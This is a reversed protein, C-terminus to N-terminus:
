PCPWLIVTLSCYYMHELQWVIVKISAIHQVIFILNILAKVFTGKFYNWYLHWSFEFSLEWSHKVNVHPVQITNPTLTLSLSFLQQLLLSLYWTRFQYIAVWTSSLTHLTAWTRSDGLRVGPGARCTAFLPPHTIPWNPAKNLLITITPQCCYIRFCCYCITTCVICMTYRPNNSFLFVIGENKSLAVPVIISNSSFEGVM